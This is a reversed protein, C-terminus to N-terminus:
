RKKIIDIVTKALVDGKELVCLLAKNKDTAQDIVLKMQTIEEDDVSTMKLREIVDEFDADKMIRLRDKVTEDLATQMAQTSAQKFINDDFRKAM